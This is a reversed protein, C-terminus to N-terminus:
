NKAANRLKNLVEVEFAGPNDYRENSMNTVFTHLGTHYTKHKALFNNLVRESVQNTAVNLKWEEGEKVLEVSKFLEPAVFVNVYMTPDLDKLDNAGLAASPNKLILNEVEFRGYAKKGDKDEKPAAGVKFNTPFPDLGQLTLILKDTLLGKNEGFKRIQDIERALDRAPGHGQKLLDGYSKSTYRSAADYDRNRIAENFKVMAENPTKAGTYGRAVSWAEWTWYGIASGFFVFVLIGGGVLVLFILLRSVRVEPM